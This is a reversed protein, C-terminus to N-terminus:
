LRDETMTSRLSTMTREVKSFCREPEANSVPLSALIKLLQHITPYTVPNCMNFAANATIPVPDTESTNSMKWKTQWLLFEAKLNETEPNSIVSKFKNWTTELDEWTATKAKGPLLVSLMIAQRQQNGFRDRLDLTIADIATNFVNVRTTPKLPEKAQQM